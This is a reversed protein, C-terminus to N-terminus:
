MNVRNCFVSLRHVSIYDTCCDVLKVREKLLNYSLMKVSCISENNSGTIGTLSAPFLLLLMDPRTSTNKLPLQPVTQSSRHSIRSALTTQLCNPNLLASCATHTIILVWCTTYNDISQSPEIQGPYHGLKTPHHPM